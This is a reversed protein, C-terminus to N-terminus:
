IQSNPFAFSLLLLDLLKLLDLFSRELVFQVRNEFTNFDFVVLFTSLIENLM